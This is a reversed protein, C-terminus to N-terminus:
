DFCAAIKEGCINMPSFFWILERGKLLFFVVVVFFNENPNSSFPFILYPFIQRRQLISFLRISLITNFSVSSM